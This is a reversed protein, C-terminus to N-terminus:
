QGQHKELWEQALSNAKAIDGSTMESVIKNRFDKTDFGKSQAITWWMFAKVSDKPVGHGGYYMAGLLFQADADGEEILPEIERLAAAYDGNKYDALAQNASRYQPFGQAAALGYWKDAEDFNKTVGLGDEYLLGVMRQADANGRKAIPEFQKLAEAYDERQFAELGKEYDALVGGRKAMWTEAMAWAKSVDASGLEEEYMDRDASGAISGHSAAINAWMHAMVYNQEVGIGEAYMGELHVQSDVHGQEAARSYWSFAEAYNKYEGVSYLEALYYQADADGQGAVMKFWKISEAEDRNPRRSYWHGLIYQSRAHGQEGARRFWENAHLDNKEVGFGNLYMVGIHFQANADGAESLPKFERLATSYDGREFAAIGDQLDAIATSPWGVTVQVCIAAAILLKRM